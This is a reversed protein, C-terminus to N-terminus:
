EKGKIIDGIKITLERAAEMSQAEAVIKLGRTRDPIVTVNGDAM